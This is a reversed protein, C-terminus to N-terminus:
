AGEERHRHEHSQQSPPIPTAAGLQASRAMAIGRWFEMDREVRDLDRDMDDQVRRAGREEAQRIEEAYEKRRKANSASISLFLGIIATVGGIAGGAAGATEWGAAVGGGVTATHGTAYRVALHM